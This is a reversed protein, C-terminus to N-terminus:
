LMLRCVANLIRIEHVPELLKFGNFKGYIGTIEKM